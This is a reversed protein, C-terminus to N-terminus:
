TRVVCLRFSPRIVHYCYSQQATACLLALFRFHGHFKVTLLVRQISLILGFMCNKTQKERHGAMELIDAMKYNGM